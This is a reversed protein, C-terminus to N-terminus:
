RAEPQVNPISRRLRVRTPYDVPRRNDPDVLSFDWLETGQYFDPVGPAAIVADGDVRVMPPLGVPFYSTKASPKAPCVGSVSDNGGPTFVWHLGPTAGEGCAAYTGQGQTWPVTGDAFAPTVAIAATAFAAALVVLVKKM